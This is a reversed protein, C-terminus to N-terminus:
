NVYRILLILLFTQPHQLFISCLLTIYRHKSLLSLQENSKRYVGAKIGNQIIQMNEKSFFAKSLNNECWVGKTADRFTAPVNVPMKDYMKFLADTDMEPELVNVRGNNKISSYKSM